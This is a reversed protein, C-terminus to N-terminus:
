REDSIAPGPRTFSEVLDLVLERIDGRNPLAGIMGYM